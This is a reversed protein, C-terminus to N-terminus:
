ITQGLRQGMLCRMELGKATAELLDQDLRITNEKFLDREFSAKSSLILPKQIFAGFFAIKLL